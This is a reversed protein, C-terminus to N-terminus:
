SFEGMCRLADLALLKIGEMRAEDALVLICHILEIRRKDADTRMPVANYDKGIDNAM